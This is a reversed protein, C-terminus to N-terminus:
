PLLYETRIQQSVGIEGGPAQGIIPRAWLGAFHVGLMLYSISVNILLNNINESSSVM